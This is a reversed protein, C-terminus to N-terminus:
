LAGSGAKICRAIINLAPSAEAMAYFAIPARDLATLLLPACYGHFLANVVGEAKGAELRASVLEIANEARDVDWLAGEYALIAAFLLNCADMILDTNVSNNLMERKVPMLALGPTKLARAGADLIETLEARAENYVIPLM